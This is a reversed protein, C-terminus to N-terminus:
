DQLIIEDGKNTITKPVPLPGLEPFLSLQRLSKPSDKIARLLTNKPAQKKREKQFYFLFFIADNAETM